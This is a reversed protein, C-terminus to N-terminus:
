RYKNDLLRHTLEVGMFAAANSPFARALAPSIGRYLAHIGEENLIKKFVDVSSSYMGEPATQFRSKVVDCPIAVIWNAVGAFGGALIISITPLQNVNDYGLFEATANRFLEYTGFYAANGPSDRLLTIGTGRFLTRIGGSKYLQKACDFTSAYKVGSASQNNQIQMLCKVRESPTVVFTGPIATAGGAIFYQMISLRDSSNKNDKNSSSLMYNTTYNYTLFVVAFNPTVAFLPATVGQYFGRVGQTLFTQKMLHFISPSVVRTQSASLTGSVSTNVVTNGVGMQMRVKVTDFPHGTFVNFVGSIQTAFCLLLTGSRDFIYIIKVCM